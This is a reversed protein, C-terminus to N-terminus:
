GTTAARGPGHEAVSGPISTAASVGARFDELAADISFGETVTVGQNSTTEGEELRLTKVLTEVAAAGQRVHPLPPKPLSYDVLGKGPVPVVDDYQATLRQAVDAAAALIQTNMEARLKAADLKRQEVAARTSEARISGNLGAAAAWRGITAVPIGIRRSAENQGHERYLQLAQDRQQDTYRSM